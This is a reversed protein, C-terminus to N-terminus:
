LHINSAEKDRKSNQLLFRVVYNDFLFHNWSTLLGSDQLLQQGQFHMERLSCLKSIDFVSLCCKKINRRKNKKEFYIYVNELKYM